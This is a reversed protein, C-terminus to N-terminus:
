LQRIHQSWCAFMEYALGFPCTFAYRLLPNRPLRQQSCQKLSATAPEHKANFKDPLGNKDWYHRNPHLQRPRRHNAKKNNGQWSARQIEQRNPNVRCGTPPPTKTHYYYYYYCQMLDHFARICRISRQCFNVRALDVQTCHRLKLLCAHSSGLGQNDQFSKRHFDRRM